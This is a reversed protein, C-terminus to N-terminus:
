LLNNKLLFDKILQKEDHSYFGNHGCKLTILNGINIEDLKYNKKSLHDNPFLNNKLPAFKKNKLCDTKKEFKVESSHLYNFKSKIESFYKLLDNLIKESYVDQNKFDNELDVIENIKYKDNKNNVIYLM